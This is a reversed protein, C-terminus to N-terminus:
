EIKAGEEKVPRELLANASIFASGSVARSFPTSMGVIEGDTNILVGGGLIRDAGINTDLMSIGSDTPTSATVIGDEIRTATKGSLLIVTQGLTAHEGFFQAPTWPTTSSASLYAIGREPDRINVSVASSTGDSRLAHMKEMEGIASVDGIITGAENIVVGFGLFTSETSTGAYLRVVSPAVKEVAQSILDSEKVIVTKTTVVAAAQGPVVREVTREIIRDVSQTIAPPAQDMLSVTVIGTAISTVFSVLLTLLVIQSKSLEEIKM